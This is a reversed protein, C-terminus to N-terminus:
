ANVCGAPKGPINSTIPYPCKIITFDSYDNNDYLNRRFKNDSITILLDQYSAEKNSHTEKYIKHIYKDFNDNTITNYNSCGGM